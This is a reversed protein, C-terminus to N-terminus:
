QLKLFLIMSLIGSGTQGKKYKSVALKFRSNVWWYKKIRYEEVMWIMYLYNTVYFEVKALTCKKM